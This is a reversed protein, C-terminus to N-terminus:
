PSCPAPLPSTLILVTKERHFHVVKTPWFLQTDESSHQNAFHSLSILWSHTHWSGVRQQRREECVVVRHHRHWRARAADLQLLHVDGGAVQGHAAQGALVVQCSVPCDVPWPLERKSPCNKIILAGKVVGLTEISCSGSILRQDKFYAQSRNTRARIDMVSNTIVAEARVPARLSILSCHQTMIANLSLQTTLWQKVSTQFKAFQWLNLSFSPAHFVRYCLKQTECLHHPNHIGGM